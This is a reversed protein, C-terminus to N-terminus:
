VEGQVRRILMMVMRADTESFESFCKPGLFYMYKKLQNETLQYKRKQCVLEMYKETKYCANM